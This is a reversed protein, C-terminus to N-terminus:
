FVGLDWWRRAPHPIRRSLCFYAGGYAYWALINLGAAMTALPLRKGAWEVPQYGYLLFPVYAVLGLLLTIRIVWAMGRPIRDGWLHRAIMVMLAPTVWGFYMLHSHAHRINGLSLGEPLGAVMGYRFLAGTAAALAFCGLAGIWIGRGEAEVVFRRLAGEM